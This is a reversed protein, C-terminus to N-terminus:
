KRLIPPRDDPKQQSAPTQSSQQVNTTQNLVNAAAKDRAAQDKLDKNQQSSQDIKTGTNPSSTVPTTKENIVPEITGPKFGEWVRQKQIMSKLQSDSMTGIVTNLSVGAAKALDKAYGNAAPTTTKGTVWLNVGQELTLDKYMPRRWLAMKLQDGAELSPMIAIGTTRQQKDGNPDKWAGIAGYKIALEGYSVNGPNNTRWSVSGGKYIQNGITVEKGTQVPPIKIASPKTASPKVEPAKPAPEAKPKVEPAKPAPEAKPKVEPAKPAAPKVEPPKPAPPKVEPPKPAAPKVEPPKPAPPKVEPKVEPSKPAPPQKVEPPKPAAPKVEPPKPAPPKVEPKVEPAKPAPPKVEPAKPAPPKVEPAKTKKRRVTLAKLIQNHQTDDQRKKDKVLRQELERTKVTQERNKVMLEYIAGLIKEASDLNSDAPSSKPSASEKLSSATQKSKDSLRARMNEHTIDKSSDRAM